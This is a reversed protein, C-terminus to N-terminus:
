AKLPEIIGMIVRIMDSRKSDADRTAFRATVAIVYTNLTAEDINVRIDGMFKPLEQIGETIKPSVTEFPIYKPVEYRAKVAVDERRVIISGQILIGNPIKVSDGSDMQITTYNITIDKVYGTYSTSEMRDMSFYKPYLVPFTGGYQWMTITVYDDIKFPRVITLLIGAFQNALVTQSALGVIVSVLSGGLIVSTVDIGLSAIAAVAILFYGILSVFFIVPHTKSREMLMTLYRYIFNRVIRLILYGVVAILVADSVRTFEVPIIPVVTTIVYFLSLVAALTLFLIIVSRLIKAGSLAM